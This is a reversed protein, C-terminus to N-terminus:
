KKDIGLVKLDRRYHYCESYAGLCEDCDGEERVKPFMRARWWASKSTVRSYFDPLASQMLIRHSTEFMKSDEYLKSGIQTREEYDHMYMTHLSMRLIEAGGFQHGVLKMSVFYRSEGNNVEHRCLVIVDGVIADTYKGLYGCDLEGREVSKVSVCSLDSKNAYSLMSMQDFMGYESAQTKRIFEKVPPLIIKNRDM